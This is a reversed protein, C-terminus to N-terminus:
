VKPSSDNGIIGGITAGIAVGVPGAIIGIIGGIVSGATTNDRQMSSKKMKSYPARTKGYKKRASASNSVGKEINCKSHAAFLNNLHDTGGKAKPKSHEVQWLIGYDRFQLKKHCIHCYGDTKDFIKKLGAKEM